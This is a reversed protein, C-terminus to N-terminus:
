LLGEDGNGGWDACVAGNRGIGRDALDGLGEGSTEGLRAPKGAVAENRAGLRQGRDDLGRGAPRRLQGVTDRRFELPSGSQRHAGVPLGAVVEAVWRRPRVLLRRWSRLRDGDDAFRSSML